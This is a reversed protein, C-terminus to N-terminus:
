TTSKLQQQCQAKRQPSKWRSPAPKQQQQHHKQQPQPQRKKILSKMQIMKFYYSLTLSKM